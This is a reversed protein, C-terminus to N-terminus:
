EKDDKRICLLCAVFFGFISGIFLGVLLGWIM